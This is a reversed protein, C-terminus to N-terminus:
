YGVKSTSPRISYTPKLMGVRWPWMSELSATGQWRDIVWLKVPSAEPPVTV